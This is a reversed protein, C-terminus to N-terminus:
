RRAPGPRVVRGAPRSVIEGDKYVTNGRVLTRVVRGQLTRGIYPSQKHRYLLDEARLAYGDMSARDFPPYDRDARVAGTLVRGDARDLPITATGFSHAKSRVLTQAEAYSIM